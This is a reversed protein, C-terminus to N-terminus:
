VRAAASDNNEVQAGGGNKGDVSWDGACEREHGGGRQCKDRSPACLQARGWSRQSWTSNRKWSDRHQQVYIDAKGRLSVFPRSTADGRSERNNESHQTTTLQSSLPHLPELLTGRIVPAPPLQSSSKYNKKLCIILIYRVAETNVAQQWQEWDKLSCEPFHLKIMLIVNFHIVSPFLLIHLTELARFLVISADWESPYPALFM